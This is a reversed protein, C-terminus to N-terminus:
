TASSVKWRALRERREEFARSLEPPVDIMAMVLEVRLAIADRVTAVVSATVRGPHAHRVRATLQVTAPLFSPRLFVARRVMGLVAGRELGHRLLTVEECLPGAVQAALELLFSGPLLPVGPFHDAFIPHDASVIAEGVANGAHADIRLTRILEFVVDRGVSLHVASEREYASPVLFHKVVGAATTAQGTWYVVGELQRGGRDQLYQWTAELIHRPIRLVKIRDPKVKDM